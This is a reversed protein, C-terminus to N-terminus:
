AGNLEEYSTIVKIWKPFEVVVGFDVYGRVHNLTDPETSSGGTLPYVKSPDASRSAVRANTQPSCFMATKAVILDSGATCHGTNRFRPLFYNM